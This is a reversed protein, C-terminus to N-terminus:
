LRPIRSQYSSHTSASLSVFMELGKPMNRLLLEKCINGPEISGSISYLVILTKGEVVAKCRTVLSNSLKM